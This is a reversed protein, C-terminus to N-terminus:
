KTSDLISYIYEKDNQWLPLGKEITRKIVGSIGLIRIAYERFDPDSYDDAKQILDDVIGNDREQLQKLQLQYNVLRAHLDRIIKSEGYKKFDACFEDKEMSTNLYLDNIYGLEGDAPLIGTRETFEQQTM